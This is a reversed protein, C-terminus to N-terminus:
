MIDDTDSILPKQETYYVILDVFNCYVSTKNNRFNTIFSVVSKPYWETKLLFKPLQSNDLVIAETSKSTIKNLSNTSIFQNFESGNNADLRFYVNLSKNIKQLNQYILNLNSLCDKPYHSDLIFLIPFKHLETISQLINELTEKKRDIWIKEKSRNAISETLNNATKLEYTYGYKFKRDALLVPNSLESETLDTKLANIIFPNKEFNEFYENKIALIKEIEKYYELLPEDIEFKFPKLGRIIHYINSETLPMVAINNNIITKEIKKSSTINLLVQNIQKNYNFEVCFKDVTNKPIYIKRINEIVRFSKSWKPSELITDDITIYKKIESKNENLIKILLKGQNATLFKNSNIQSALSRLIKKDKEPLIILNNNFNESVIELLIFDVTNM